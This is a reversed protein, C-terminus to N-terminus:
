ALLGKKKLKKISKRLAKLSFEDYIWVHERPFRLSALDDAESFDTCGELPQVFDGDVCAFYKTM